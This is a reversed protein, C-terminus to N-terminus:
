SAADGVEPLVPPRLARERLLGAVARRLGPCAAARWLFRRRRGDLTRITMVVADRGPFEALLAAIRALFRADEAEDPTEAVTFKLAPRAGMGLAAAVLPSAPCPPQLLRILEASHARMDALLADVEPTRRGRVVLRGGDVRLTLGLEHARRLLDLATTM